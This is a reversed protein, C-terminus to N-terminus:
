VPLASARRGPREITCYYDNYEEESGGVRWLPVTGVDRVGNYDNWREKAAYLVRTTYM